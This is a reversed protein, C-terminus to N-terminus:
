GVLPGPSPQHTTSTEPANQAPSAPDAPAPRDAAAPKDSPAPATIEEVKAVKVRADVRVDASDGRSAPYHERIRANKAAQKAQDASEFEGDVYTGDDFFTRYKSKAM